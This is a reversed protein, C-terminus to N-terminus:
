SYLINTPSWWSRLLWYFLLFMIIQMIHIWTTSTKNFIFFCFVFFLHWGLKHGIRFRKLLLQAMRYVYLQTFDHNLEMCNMITNWTCFRGRFILIYKVISTHYLFRILWRYDVVINGYICIHYSIWIYIIDNGFFLLDNSIESIKFIQILFQLEWNSLSVLNFRFIDYM